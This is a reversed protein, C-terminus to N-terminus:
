RELSAQIESKIVTPQLITVHLDKRVSIDLFKRQLKEWEQWKNYRNKQIQSALHPMEKALNLHCSEALFNDLVFGDQIEGLVAQVAKIDALYNQYIEGYFQQFLELNYRSRKAAKRLEHLTVGQRSLLTEVEGESLGDPFQAAGEQFELGVTWGEHLLFDGIQPLLLDPLIHHISFKAIERYKPKKLWNNLSKKLNTYVEGKLSKKVREFAERRRQLLTELTQQLREQEQPPLSPKYRNELADKLVDIDRLEGLTRAVKGLPNSSANKPLKLALSFGVMASRLRRMGVRMQHLEEPDRDELVEAEHNLIKQFHKAIALYAWDGFTKAESNFATKM